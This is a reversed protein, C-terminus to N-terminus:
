KNTQRRRLLAGGALAALGLALLPVVDPSADGAKPLPRTPAPPEPTPPVPPETYTNTFVAAQDSGDAVVSTVKLQGDVDEVKVTYTAVKTDYTVNAEDGKVERVQYTYTGAADFSLNDFTVIGDADNTRTDIVNGRADLLQFSFEGARLDRGKLVKQAKLYGSTSLPKYTNKFANGEPYTVAVALTGDGNDAVSVKVPKRATDYTVGTASGGVEVMKYEHDGVQTQDYGIASFTVTGDAANKGTAVTKGAADLLAFEFEGEAMNRGTLSKTALIKGETSGSATYRNTFVAGDEDYATTVALTGDGKDTVTVTVTEVHGDYEYGARGDSVESITYTFTKTRPNDAANAPTVILSALADVLDSVPNPAEIAAPESVPEEVMTADVDAAPEESVPVEVDAPPEEAVPEEAPPEEAAPEEAAETEAAPEAVYDKAKAETTEEPKADDTAPAAEGFISQDYTIADFVVRGSADNTKTQLVNGQADKLEFKFQDAELTRGTLNKQAFITAGTDGSAAYSNSFTTKDYEVSAGMTGDGKDTVTVTVAASDGDYKYGAKGDNVESITYTYTGPKTYELGDFAVTGDAANSKTQAANIDGDTTPTLTFSFQGAALTAGTLTKRVSLRVSNDGELPRDGYTNTIEAPKTVAATLNGKGDDEVKVEVNKPTNDCTWGDGTKTTETLTFNYTGAKTFIINGFSITQTKAGDSTFTAQGKAHDITVEEPNGAAPAITFDFTKSTWQADADDITNEVTKTLVAAVATDLKGTSKYTNTFTDSDAPQGDKTITRTASLVGEGKDTVNYSIKYTSTDYTWGGVNGAKETVTYTYTGPVTFTIRGFEASGPGTIAVTSVENGDKDKPMPNAANEPAITFEFAPMKGEPVDGEVAKTVPPDATVPKVGYTNAIEGVQTVTAELKGQGNDAVHIKITAQATEASWGAPLEGETVIYEYDGAKDFSFTGFDVSKEGTTTFTVSGQPKTPAPAGNVAAITFSFTADKALPLSSVTKKTFVATTSSDVTSSGPKYTNTITAGTVTAALTGDGKDTVEVTVTKPENDCTWGNGGRTTETVTYTYTGAKTYTITGFDIAKTGAASFTASGAAKTPMPTGEPSGEAAAISFEFTKPAWATDHAVVTKTLFAAGEATTEITTSAEYKNTFTPNNGEVSAVLKGYADKSVTVTVDHTATDYTWGKDTKTTTEDITFTYTGEKYFTVDGFSVTETAGDKLDASTTATADDLVVNGADIADQTNKNAASLAFGFAEIADHGTVKKTAQLATNADKSLTVKDYDNHFGVRYHTNSAAVTGSITQGTTGNIGNVEARDFFFGKPMDSSETFAFTMGKPANIIRLVQGQKLSVTFPTGSKVYFYGTLAGDKTEPTASTISADKVLVVENPDAPGAEQVSFWVDSGTPDTVNGTFSFSETPVAGEVRPNVVKVLDIVSRRSNTATITAAATGQAVAYKEGNIEYTGSPDKVLMTLTGDIIMPHYTAVSLDYHYESAPETVTYDHGTELVEGGKIIGPAVSVNASFAPDDTKALTKKLYEGGDSTVTLDVSDVAYSDLDNEFEKKLTMDSSHLAMSDPNTFGVKGPTEKTGTYTGDENQVWTTGDSGTWTGDDNQTVGDPLKTATTTEVKKYTVENGNATNTNLAYGNGSPVIQAKQDATLDDYALTGNKLQALIDLAQQSPWVDFSVTYTVGKELTGLSSLDWSVKGNTFTAEPAGEAVTWERGGKTYTFGGAADTDVLSATLGTVNDTMQVDKYGVANTIANLINKFAANLAAEDSADNYTGGLDRMTDVDGFAGITYLHYSKDLSDVVDKAAGFNWGNPDSNGTGWVGYYYDDNAWRDYKSNRFTPNGDSVFIIYTEEDPQAKHKADALEQAKKLAAEWNTGGDATYANVANDLTDKDTSWNTTGKVESAFNVLSIEVADANEDTNNATLQDILKTTADQAVELRTGGTRLYRTGEYRTENWGYWYTWYESSWRRARHYALEVYEGDVLGYTGYKEDTPTYKYQGTSKGMSGSTDFVIVVNAKSSQSSSSTQGTVSLTLRYTGDGNAELTKAVQPPTDDAKGAALSSAAGGAALVGFAVLAAVLVSLLRRGYRSM